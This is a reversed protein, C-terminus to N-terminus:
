IFNLIDKVVKEKKFETRDPVFIFFDKFDKLKNKIEALDRYSLKGWKVEGVLYPKKFKLMFIDIEREKELFIAERLGYKEALYERVSSEVFRPILEEVILKAKELNAEETFNYKEDAYFYMKMLPSVLDYIYDNKNAILIRKALGFDILNKLYQQIMTSSEKKILGRSFLYSAIEGARNKGVSIARLIGEYVNSINKEEEMFIEGLLAPVTHKTTLLLESILKRANVGKRLYEITIPERCFIALELADKKNFGSEYIKKFCADLPILGLQVEAVLGLLPSNTALMKKSLYLTSSLLIIKGGRGLYHLFDLFDSGLRHFEDVVITKNSKSYEKLLEKFTEYSIEKNNIITKDRKIFYYGDFRVFNKVLFTKGTKRRGYLLIWKNTKNIFEAEGRKIIIM